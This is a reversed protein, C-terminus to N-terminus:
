GVALARGRERIREVKFISAVHAKSVDSGVVCLVMDWFFANKTTLAAFVM